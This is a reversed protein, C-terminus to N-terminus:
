SPIHGFKEILDMGAFDQQLVEHLRHTDARAFKGRIDIHRRAPDALEDVALPGDAGIGRQAQPQKERHLRAPRGRRTRASPAARCANRAPARLPSM